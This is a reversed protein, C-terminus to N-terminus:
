NGQIRMESELVELVGRLNIPASEKADKDDGLHVHNPFTELEPHHKANDWRKILIGEKDQWHFRYGALHVTDEIHQCYMSVELLSEDVLTARVRLYGDTEIERKKVVQFQEVVSSVTLLLICEELCDHITM